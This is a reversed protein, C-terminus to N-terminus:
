PYREGRNTNTLVSVTRIGTRRSVEIAKARGLGQMEVQPAANCLPQPSQHNGTARPHAPARHGPIRTGPEIDPLVYFGPSRSTM